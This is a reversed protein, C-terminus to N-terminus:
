SVANRQTASLCVVNAILKLGLQRHDLVRQTGKEDKYQKM